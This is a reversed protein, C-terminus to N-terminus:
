SEVFLSKRNGMTLKYIGFPFFGPAVSLLAQKSKLRNYVGMTAKAQGMLFLIDANEPNVVTHQQRVRWVLPKVLGLGMQSAM